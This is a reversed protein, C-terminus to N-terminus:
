LTKAVQLLESKMVPIPDVAVGKKRIEFHLHAGTSRGTSGVLGIPTSTNVSDGVKALNESNHGYVSELGDQHRVMVVKGYGDMWGSYTVKGPEIPFIKSGKDAALDIGPHLSSHGNFPDKRVGFESTLHAPSDLLKAWPGTLSATDTGTTTVAATKAFAPTTTTELVAAKAIAKASPPNLIRQILDGLDTRPATKATRTLYSSSLSADKFALSTARTTTPTPTATVAQALAAGRAAAQTPTATIAQAVTPAVPPPLNSMRVAAPATLPATSAAKAIPTAPIVPAKVTQLSSITLVQGPTILDPNKLNNERAVKQVAAWTAADSSDKKANELNKRCIDSLTEGPKVTHVAVLPNTHTRISRLPDVKQLM